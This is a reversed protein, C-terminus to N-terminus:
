LGLWLTDHDYDYDQDYDYDYDFDYRCYFGSQTPDMRFVKVHIPKFGKENIVQFIYQLSTNLVTGFYASNVM